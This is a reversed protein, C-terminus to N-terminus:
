LMPPQQTWNGASFGQYSIDHYINVTSVGLISDGALTGVTVEEQHHDIGTSWLPEQDPHCEGETEGPFQMDGAHQRSLNDTENKKGESLGGSAEDVKYFSNSRVIPRIAPLLVSLDPGGMSVPPVQPPRPSDPNSLICGKFGSEDGLGATEGIREGDSVGGDQLSRDTHITSSLHLM